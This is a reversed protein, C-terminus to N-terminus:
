HMFYQRELWLQLERKMRPDAEVFRIGANGQKDKWAVEGQFKMALKTGPLTFNVSVKRSAQQTTQFHM